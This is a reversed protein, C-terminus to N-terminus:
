TYFLIVRLNKIPTNASNAYDLHFKFFIKDIYVLQFLKIIKKEKDKEIKLDFYFNILKLDIILFRKALKAKIKIINKSKKIDIIKINNIFKNFILNNFSALLIFM